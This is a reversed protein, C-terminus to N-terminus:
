VHNENEYNLLKIFVFIYIYLKLLKCLEPFLNCSENM